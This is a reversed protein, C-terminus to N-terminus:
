EDIRGREDMDDHAENPLSVTLLCPFNVGDDSIDDKGGIPEDEMADDDLWSM